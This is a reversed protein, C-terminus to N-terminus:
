ERADRGVPRFMAIFEAELQARSAPLRIAPNAEDCCDPHRWNAVANLMAGGANTNIEILRPGEPGVHFDFGAFVGLARTSVRAIPPADALVAAQFAPLAVVRHVAAVLSEMQRVHASDVFVPARSYFSALAEDGVSECACNLNLQRARSSEM